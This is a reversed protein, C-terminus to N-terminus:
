PEREPSSTADTARLPLELTFTAGHGPGESSARLTGGMARATLLSGALGFGHGGRKTSFGYTFLRQVHDPEIGVGNDIVDIQLNGDGNRDARVVIRKDAATSAELAQRSNVILNTLIEILMHRDLVVVEAVNVEVSVAVGHRALSADSMQVADAIVEAVHVPEVLPTSHAYAQQRAIVSKIHELHRVLLRVNAVNEAHEEDLQELLLLLYERVQAGRQDGAPVEPLAALARRVMPLRSAEIREAIMHVSGDLSTLVNGVNHLVDTAVQAKGAVHAASALQRMTRAHAEHARLREGIDRGLCAVGCVEGSATRIPNLLIELDFTTAGVTISREVALQEGALARALLRELDARESMPFGAFVSQGTVIPPRGAGALFAAFRSNSAVLNLDRDVSFVSADINEFLALRAARADELLVLAADRDGLAERRSRDLFWAATGVVGLLAVDSGLRAIPGVHEPPFVYGASAAAQLLLPLGVTAGIVWLSARSGLFFPAILCAVALWDLLESAPGGKRMAGLTVFGILIALTARTAIDARGTRPLSALNVVFLAGVLALGPTLSTWGFRSIFVGAFAAIALLLNAAALLRSRRREDDPRARFRPGLIRDMTAAGRM